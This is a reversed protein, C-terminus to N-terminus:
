VLSLAKAFPPARAAYAAPPQTSPESAPFTQKLFEASELLVLGTHPGSAAVACAAFAHCTACAHSITDGDADMEPTAQTVQAVHGLQHVFAGGQALLMSLACFWLFLIRLPTPHVANPIRSSGCLM